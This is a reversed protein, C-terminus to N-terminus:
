ASIELPARKSSPKDSNGGIWPSIVLVKGQIERAYERVAEEPTKGNGYTGTMCGDTENNATHVGHFKAMYRGNQNPFRRIEIELNLIDALDYISIM